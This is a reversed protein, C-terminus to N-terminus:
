DLTSMCDSLIIANEKYVHVAMLFEADDARLEV